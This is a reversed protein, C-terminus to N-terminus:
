QVEESDETAASPGPWRGLSRRLRSAAVHAEREARAAELSVRLWQRQSDDLELYTARGVRYESETSALADTAKPVLVRRHLRAVRASESLAAWVREAEAPIGTRAQGLARARAAVRDRLEEAFPSGTVYHAPFGLPSSGALQESLGSSLDPVVRREVLELTAQARGWELEAIKLDPASLAAKRVGALSPVDPRQAAEGAAVPAAVDLVSGLRSEAAALADRATGLMQTMEALRMEAKLLDAKRAQGSAYRARVVDAFRRSLTLNAGYTAVASRQYRAEHFAMIFGTMLDLVTAHFEELALAVDRQVATGQLAEPGPLPWAAERNDPRRAFGQYQEVLRELYLAQGLRGRRADLRSRAARLAQSRAFFATLASTEAIPSPMDYSEASAQTWLTEDIALGLFDLDAPKLGSSPTPRPAGAMAGM